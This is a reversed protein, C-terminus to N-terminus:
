SIAATIAPIRVLPANMSVSNPAVVTASIKPERDRTEEADIFNATGGGVKNVSLQSVDRFTSTGIIIDQPM